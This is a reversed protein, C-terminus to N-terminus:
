EQNEFMGIPWDILIGLLEIAGLVLKVAILSDIRCELGSLRAVIPRGGAMFRSVAVHFSKVFLAPEQVARSMMQSMEIRLKIIEFWKRREEHFM